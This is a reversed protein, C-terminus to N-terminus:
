GVLCKYAAGSPLGDETLHHYVVRVMLGRLGERERWFEARKEANVSSLSVKFTHGADGSVLLAGATGQWEGSGELVEVIRYVDSKGPKWKLMRDSYKAEWIMRPHRIVVGEFGIAIADHLHSVAEEWSTARLTKVVNLKQDTGAGYHKMLIAQIERVSQNPGGTYPLSELAEIRDAMPKPSPVDFIFFGVREHEPHLNEAKRRCIGAIKAEPMDHCYAEGDLKKGAYHKGLEAVLLPLGLIPKGSIFLLDRGDWVARVGQLKPQVFVFGCTKIWEEITPRYLGSAKPAIIKKNKPM